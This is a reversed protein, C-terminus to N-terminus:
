CDNALASMESWEMNRMLFQCSGCVDKQCNNLCYNFVARLFNHKSPIESFEMWVLQLSYIESSNHSLAAPYNIYIINPQVSLFLNSIYDLVWFKPFTTSKLHFRKCLYQFYFNLVCISSHLYICYIDELPLITCSCKKSFILNYIYKKIMFLSFSIMRVWIM